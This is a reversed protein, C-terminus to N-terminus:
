LEDRLSLAERVFSRVEKDRLLGILPFAAQYLRFRGKLSLRSELAAKDFVPIVKIRDGYLPYLFAAAEMVRGTDYPDGTGFSVYGSADRPSLRVFLKKLVDAIHRLAARHEPTMLLDAAERIFGYLAMLRDIVRKM